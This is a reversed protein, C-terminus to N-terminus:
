LDCCIDFSSIVVGMPKSHLHPHPRGEVGPLGKECGSGALTDLPLSLGVFRSV